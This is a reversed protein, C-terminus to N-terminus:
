LINRIVEQGSTGQFIELELLYEGTTSISFPGQKPHWSIQIETRSSVSMSCDPCNRLREQSKKKKLHLFLIYQGLCRGPRLCGDQTGSARLRAESKDEANGVWRSHQM